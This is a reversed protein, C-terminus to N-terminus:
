LNVSFNYDGKSNVIVGLNPIGETQSVEEISERSIKSENVPLNANYQALGVIVNGDSNITLLSKVQEESTVYTMLKNSHQEPVYVGEVIIKNIGIKGILYGTRIDKPNGKALQETIQDITTQNIQIEM